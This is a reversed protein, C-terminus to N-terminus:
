RLLAYTILAGLAAAGLGLVVFGAVVLPDRRVREFSPRNSSRHEGSAKRTRHEGTVHEGTAFPPRPTDRFAQHEASARVALLSERPSASPFTGPPAAIEVGAAAAFDAALETPREYRLAPNPAMAKELVLELDPNVDPRKETLPEVRGQVIAGLLQGHGSAAFPSDGVLAEYLVIGLAYIDVSSGATHASAIQEPAMYRPTGLVMGTKTLKKAKASLSLGFDLLKVVPGRRPLFVHEPKLDRHVVGAAHAAELASACGVVIPVLEQPDLRGRREVRERLTEGELLEMALWPVKGGMALGHGRYDVISPHDIAELIAQEREFRERLARDKRGKVLVKLAVSEGTETDTARFVQGMGGAGLHADIQFRSAFFSGPSFPDVVETEAADEDDGGDEDVLADELSELAAADVVPGVGETDTAAREPADAAPAKAAPGRPPEESM